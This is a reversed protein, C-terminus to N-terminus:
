QKPYINFYNSYIYLTLGWNKLLMGIQIIIHQVVRLESNIDYITTDM